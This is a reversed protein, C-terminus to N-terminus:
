RPTLFIYKTLRPIVAAQICIVAKQIHRRETQYCFLWAEPAKKGGDEFAEFSM